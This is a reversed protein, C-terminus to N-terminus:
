TVRMISLDSVSVRVSGDCIGTGRGLGLGFLRGAWITDSIDSSSSSVHSSICFGGVYERFAMSDSFMMAKCVRIFWRSPATLSIRPRRLFLWHTFWHPSRAKLICSIQVAVINTAMDSLHRLILFLKLFQNLLQGLFELICKLLYLWTLTGLQM